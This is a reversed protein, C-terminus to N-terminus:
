TLYFIYFVFLLWGIFSVLMARDRFVISEPFELLEPAKYIYELMKIIAFVVFVSSYVLYINEHELISWISYIGISLTSSFFIINKLLAPSYKISSPNALIQSYRKLSTTFLSVFFVALIIWSSIYVSAVLGGVLVRIVFLIPIILLDFIYKKKIYLSYILNFFIYLLLMLYIQDINIAFIFSVFLLLFMLFYAKKKTIIGLPLPRFSKVKHEGDKKIDCIDNFIYVASAL